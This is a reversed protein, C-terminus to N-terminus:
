MVATGKNNDGFGRGRTRRLVRLPSLEVRKTIASFYEKKKGKRFYGM